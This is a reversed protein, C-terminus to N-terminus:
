LVRAEPGRSGALRRSLSVRLLCKMAQGSRYKSLAKERAFYITARILTKNELELVPPKCRLGVLEWEDPSTCGEVSESKVDDQAM